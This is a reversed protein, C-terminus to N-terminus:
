NKKRKLRGTKNDLQHIEHYVIPLGNFLFLWRILPMHRIYHYIFDTIIHFLFGFFVYLLPTYFMSAILLLANFEISHFLFFERKFATRPHNEYEWNTKKWTQIIKKPTYASNVILTQIHDLDILVSALFMIVSYNGILPYFGLLVLGILIHPILKM